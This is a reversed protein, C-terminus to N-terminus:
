LNKVIEFILGPDNKFDVWIMDPSTVSHIKNDKTALYRHNMNPYVYIYDYRFNLSSVSTHYFGLRAGHEADLVVVPRRYIMAPHAGLSPQPQNPTAGVLTLLTKALLIKVGM